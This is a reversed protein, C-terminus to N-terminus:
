RAFRPVLKKIQKASYYFVALLALYRADLGLTYINKSYFSFAQDHYSLAAHNTPSSAFYLVGWGARYDLIGCGALVWSLAPPLEALLAFVLVWMMYHPSFVKNSLMIVTFCLASAQVPTIYKRRSWRFLLYLSAGVTIYSVIDILAYFVSNSVSNNLNPYYFLDLVSSMGQRLFNYEFFYSWNYPNAVLFPVNIVLSTVVFYKSLSKLAQTEKKSWLEIVLFFLLVIPFFKSFVALSMWFGAAKWKENRYFYFGLVMFFISIIDWNLFEYAYLLPSLAFLLSYRGLIKELILFTGAACFSLIVANAIFYLIPGSFYSTVWMTIGMLVPYEIRNQIYPVQHLFLHRGAWLSLIDSYNSHYFSWSNYSDQTYLPHGNQILTSQPPLM